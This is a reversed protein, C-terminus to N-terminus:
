APARSRSEALRRADCRGGDCSLRYSSSRRPSTWHSQPRVQDRWTFSLACPPLPSGNPQAPISPQAALRPVPSCLRVPTGSPALIRLSLCLHATSQSWDPFADKDCPVGISDSRSHPLLYNSERGRSQLRFPQARLSIVSEKANDQYNNLQTHSHQM